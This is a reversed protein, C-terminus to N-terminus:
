FSEQNCNIKHLLLYRDQKEKSERGLKTGILKHYVSIRFFVNIMYGTVRKNMNYNPLHCLLIKQLHISFISM